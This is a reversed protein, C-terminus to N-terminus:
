QLKYPLGAVASYLSYLTNAIYQGPFSEGCPVTAGAEYHQIAVCYTNNVMLGLLEGTQSLVLDGTSPNFKGFLGRLSNRDMRLYRPASLDIQFQCQGYYGERAGVVVAEQFKYPEHSVRYVKCGSERAWDNSVPMMVVRPDVLCFALSSIATADGNRAISANIEKWTAAPDWLALLTDEIHCLAFTNSGDTVLITQTQKTKTTDGGFFGPRVGEFSITLRNSVFDNFITNPTLTRNARIEQALESSKGALAQVGAALKANQQRQADLDQEAMALQAAAARQGAQSLQLQGALQERQAQALENSKQLDSLQRQLDAAKQAEEGAKAEQAAREEKTLLSELTSQQLQQNLSAVNSQAESMQQLLRSQQAQLEASEQARAALQKQATQYQENRQKLLSQQEGAAAQTNSLELALANQKKQEEQLALRMVDGLDQRGGNQNTEPAPTLTMARASTVDSAQNIDVTSFALLSILLFDCIVILISRNM